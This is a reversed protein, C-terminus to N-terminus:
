VSWGGPTARASLRVTALLHEVESAPYPRGSMRRLTAESLALTRPEVLSEGDDIRGPHEVRVPAISWGRAAFVLTLLGLADAVRAPRTGTSEILVTTGGPRIEGAPRANLIPPLSLLAGAADRLTLVEGPRTGLAGFRQALPHEELFRVAPVEAAGDLPTISVSDRPESRYSLPPRLREYPYLGLSASRRDFGVTAHLLEQFRVAEDILGETLPAGAPARVVVAAISPRIPGVSRDVRIAPAPDLGFLRAVKPLGRAAGLAGQAHLGIGAECLLDIRDATAELTLSEASASAVEAKSSALLEALGEWPTPRGLMELVRPTALTARPM